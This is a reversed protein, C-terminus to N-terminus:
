RLGDLSLRQGPRLAAGGAREALRDVIPRPDGNPDIQRAISWLTDGPQVVYVRAGAGPVSAEVPGAVTDGPLGPVSITSSTAARGDVWSRISTVAQTAVQVLGVLFLVAALLVFARRRWYVTSRARGVPLRVVNDGACAPGCVPRTAGPRRSVSRSATPTTVVAAM